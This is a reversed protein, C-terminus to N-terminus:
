SEPPDEQLLHPPPQQAAQLFRERMELKHAEEVLRYGSEKAAKPVFSGHIGDPGKVVIEGDHEEVGMPEDFPPIPELPM